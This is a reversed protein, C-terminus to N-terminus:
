AERKVVQFGDRGDYGCNAPDIFDTLGFVSSYAGPVIAADDVLEICGAQHGDILPTTPVNDVANYSCHVFTRRTEATNGLSGHLVNCGFLVADGPELILDVIGHQDVLADVVAPDACRSAGVQPHPVTGNVHSKPIVRLCGNAPEHHDLAIGITAMAPRGVGEESWFAYDQHWDWTGASGPDKWSLKSHWHYVPSDIMQEALAVLQQVRPLRGILDDGCWTWNNLPQHNGDVDVVEFAGEGVADLLPEITDSDFLGRLVVFGDTRYRELDAASLPSDSTPM